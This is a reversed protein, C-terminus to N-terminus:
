LDKQKTMRPINGVRIAPNGFVVWYDPVSKTVAAAIGAVSFMGMTRSDLLVAGPGLHSGVDLKSRGCMTANPGVYAHDEVVCHHGLMAGARLSAFRGIRSEPQVTACSAIFAGAGIQVDSSVVAHPHVVSAWRQDPIGLSEIRNVRAQMDKVKQVAPVFMIDGDLTTWDEFRGLVPVSQLIQGSPLVDNLFGHLEVDRGEAMAHLIAEAVVLGDGPGGLVVLRKRTM